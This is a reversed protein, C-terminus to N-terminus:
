SKSIHPVPPKQNVPKSKVGLDNLIASLKITPLGIATDYNGKMLDILPAAGSQIGYAGAKDMPDGTAIYARVANENFPKFVVETVDYTSATFSESKIVVALGTVIENSKGSLL